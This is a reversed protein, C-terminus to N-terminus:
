LRLAARLVGINTERTKGFFSDESDSRYNDWDARAATTSTRYIPDETAEPSHHPHLKIRVIRSNRNLGSPRRTITVATVHSHM